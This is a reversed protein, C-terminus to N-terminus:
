DERIADPISNNFYQDDTFFDMYRGQSVASLAWYSLTNAGQEKDRATYYTRNININHEKAYETILRLM